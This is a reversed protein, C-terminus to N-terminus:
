APNAAREAEAALRRDLTRTIGIWWDYAQRDGSFFAKEARARADRAAGHGHEAFHRLAAHLTHESILPTRGRLSRGMAARGAGNDNAVRGSADQALAKVILRCAGAQAYSGVIGFRVPKGSASSLIPAFNSPEAMNTKEGM